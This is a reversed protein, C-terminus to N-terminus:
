PTCTKCINPQTGYKKEAWTVLRGRDDSCTKIYTATWQEGYTPKNRNIHRCSAMHIYVLDEYSTYIGANLVYGAPHSSLWERYGADDHEFVKM